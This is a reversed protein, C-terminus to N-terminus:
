YLLPRGDRVDTAAASAPPGVVIRANHWGISRPTATDFYTPYASSLGDAAGLVQAQYKTTDAFGWVYAAGLM